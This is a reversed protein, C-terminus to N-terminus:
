QRIFMCCSKAFRSMHSGHNARRCIPVIRIKARGANRSRYETHSSFSPFDRKITQRNCISYIVQNEAHQDSTKNKLKQHNSIATLIGYM